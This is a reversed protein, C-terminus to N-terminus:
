SHKTHIVKARAEHMALGMSSVSCKPPRMVSMPPLHRMTQVALAELDDSLRPAINTQGNLPAHLPHNFGILCKLTHQVEAEDKDVERASAGAGDQGATTEASTNDEM